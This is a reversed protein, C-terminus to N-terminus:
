NSTKGMSERGLTLHKLCSDVTLGRRKAEDAYMSFGSRTDWKPSTGSTHLARSCLLDDAMKMAIETELSTKPLSLVSGPTPAAAAKTALASQPTTGSGSSTFKAAEPTLFIRLREVFYQRFAEESMKGSEDYLVGAHAQSWGWETGGGGGHRSGFNMQFAIVQKGSSTTQAFIAPRNKIKPYHLEITNAKEAFIKNGQLWERFVREEIEPFYVYDANAEQYVGAGTTLKYKQFYQNGEGPCNEAEVVTGFVAWNVAAEAIPIRECSTLSYQGIKGSTMQCAAASLVLVFLSLNRGIM